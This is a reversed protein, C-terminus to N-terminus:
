CSIRWAVSPASRMATSSAAAVQLARWRHGDAEQWPGPGADGCANLALLAGGSLATIGFIRTTTSM